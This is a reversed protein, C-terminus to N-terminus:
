VIPECIATLNETKRVPREKCGCFSKRTNMETLPQIFVLGLAALFILYISFFEIVEDTDLGATELEYCLAKFMEAPYHFHGKV